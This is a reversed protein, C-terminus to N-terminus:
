ASKSGSDDASGRNPKKFLRGVATKLEADNKLAIGVREVFETLVIRISTALELCEIDSQAHLGESLASHLLTLPNHGDIRLVQPIALKISDVAATFQTKQKAAQLEAILDDSEGLREAVRIIEDFIKDKQHEVIRRYYAFAAIGLNQNEAKLGKLYYDGENGVLTRVRAPTPPGFPPIEGFKLLSLAKQPPDYSIRISFTKFSTKCNRCCYTWFNDTLTRVNASGTTDFYRIGNCGDNACFLQVTPPNFGVTGNSFETLGISIETKQGPPVRELFKSLLVASTKVPAAASLQSTLLTM